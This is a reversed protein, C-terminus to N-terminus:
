QSGARVAGRLGGREFGVPRRRREVASHPAHVRRWFTADRHLYRRYALQRQGPDDPRTEISTIEPVGDVHPYVPHVHLKGFRAAFDSQAASELTQGEFFLVHREAVAAKLRAVVSDSLPGALDLGAVLGGIAPPLPALAFGTSPANM